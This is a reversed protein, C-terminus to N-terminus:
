EFYNRVRSHKNSSTIILIIVFCVLNQFLEHLVLILLLLEFTTSQHFLVFLTLMLTCFYFFQWYSGLKVFGKLNFVAMLPTTCFKIFALYALYIAIEGARSWEEGFIFSFLTPSWFSFVILVPLGLFFLILFRSLIFPRIESFNEAALVSIKKYIVQYFPTSLLILPIYVIRLAMGYYGTIAPGFLFSVFFIPAQLSINSVLAGPLSFYPFEKYEKSNKLMLQFNLGKFSKKLNSIKLRLFVFSGSFLGLLSGLLLGYSQWGILGLFIQSISTTGTQTINATAITKFNAKKNAWVTFVQFIATLFLAPVLFFLFGLSHYKDPMFYFYILLMLCLFVSLILGISISLFVLSKSDDIDKPLMVALEYRASSLIGLVSLIASYIVLIGFSEPTYIRSIIPSALILILQGIGTGLFLPLLNNLFENKKLRKILSM